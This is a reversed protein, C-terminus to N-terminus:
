SVTKGIKTCKERGNDGRFSRCVTASGFMLRSSDEECDGCGKKTNINM